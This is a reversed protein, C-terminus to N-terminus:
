GEAALRRVIPVLEYLSTLLYDAEPTPQPNTSLLATRTGAAHGAQIDFHFDGVLLTHEPVVDLRRACERVPEVSPKPACDERTVVTDFHLGLRRLVIAASRRSNRTVLGTRLGLEAIVALLERAGDNLQATQAARLEHRHIVEWARRRTPEAQTSLWELLPTRERLGIEARVADFDLNPRTITGDLDFLVAELM